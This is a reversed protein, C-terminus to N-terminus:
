GTFIEMAKKSILDYVPFIYHHRSYTGLTTPQMGLYRFDIEEVGFLDKVDKQTFVTKSTNKLAYIALDIGRILTNGGAFTTNRITGSKAARRIRNYGIDLLKSAESITYNGKFELDHENM